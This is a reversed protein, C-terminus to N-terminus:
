PEANGQRGIFRQGTQQALLEERIESIALELGMSSAATKSGFSGHQLLEETRQSHLDRLREATATMQELVGGNRKWEQRLDPLAEILDNIITLYRAM